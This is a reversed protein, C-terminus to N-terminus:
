GAFAPEPLGPIAVTMAFIVIGYALVSVVGVALIRFKPKV